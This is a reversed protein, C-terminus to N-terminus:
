EETTTNLKSRTAKFTAAETETQQTEADGGVTVGGTDPEPDISYIEMPMDNQADVSVHGTIQLSITGKNNKSTQLTFGNVSLANRIKVAVFGGNAKDGGWWIDKFDTQKLSRRISIKHTTEDVDAAGLALQILKESTGLSSTSISCDWGDLHKYEKMNNPFNDVDAGLDSFTPSCSISVGGTTACIIDEDNITPNAPDFNWLLIGADIQLADFANLPIRTFQGM